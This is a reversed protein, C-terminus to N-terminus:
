KGSGEVQFTLPNKTKPCRGLQEKFIQTGINGLLTTTVCWVKVRNNYTRNKGRTGFMFMNRSAVTTLAATRSSLFGLHISPSM